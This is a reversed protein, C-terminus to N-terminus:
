IIWKLITMKNRNLRICLASKIICLISVCQAFHYKSSYGCNICLKYKEWICFSMVSLVHLNCKSLIIRNIYPPLMKNPVKHYIFIGRHFIQIVNQTLSRALPHSILTFSIINETKTPEHICIPHSHYICDSLIIKIIDSVSTILVQHTM